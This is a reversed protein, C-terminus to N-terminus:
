QNFIDPYLLTGISIVGKYLRPVPRSVINEDILYIQNNKIAKIVGFGPEKKILEISVANMVGKQALFVDIQSAKALIQEKGYIAINTNRSAKADWAVNIGGATELAFIPMAGKTFTKMRTHIAQFYVKKKIKIAKTKTKIYDIKKKFDQIMKKAQQEKGTLIGLKLWYDYMQAIGSPQLSVVIIGSKELRAILKPYGNDIMPRILVLDPMFALFKEPDDHYSFKPKKAVQSPFIDNISVGIISNELGLHYLNETHAGYLSIIRTFPKSSYIQRGKKDSLTLASCNLCVFLVMFITISSIHNFPRIICRSQKQMNTLSLLPRCMM